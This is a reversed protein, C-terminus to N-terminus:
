NKILFRFNASLRIVALMKNLRFFLEKSIFLQENMQNMEKMRVIEKRLSENRLDNEDMRIKNYYRGNSYDKKYYKFIYKFKLTKARLLIHSM